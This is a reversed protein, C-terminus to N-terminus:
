LINKIITTMKVLDNFRINFIQIHMELEKQPITLSRWNSFYKADHQERILICSELLHNIVLINEHLDQIAMNIAEHLSNLTTLLKHTKAVKKKIDTTMLLYNLEEFHRTDQSIYKVLNLTKACTYMVTKVCLNCGVIGVATIM